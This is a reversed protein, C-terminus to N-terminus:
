RDSDNSRNVGGAGERQILQIGGTDQGFPRVRLRLELGIELVAAGLQRGREFREGPLLGELLAAKSRELAAERFREEILHAVHLM